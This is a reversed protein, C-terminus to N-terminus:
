LLYFSLQTINSIVLFSHSAERYKKKKFVFPPRVTCIAFFLFSWGRFFLFSWGSQSVIASFPPSFLLCYVISHRYFSPPFLLVSSLFFCSPVRVGCRGFFFCSARGYEYGAGGYGAGGYECGAGWSSVLLVRIGRSLSTGQHSTSLPLYHLYTIM